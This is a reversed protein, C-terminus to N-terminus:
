RVIVAGKMYPHPGCYYPYIGPETFTVRWTAGSEIAGSEWSGDEASVTHVVEDRNTWEVTSGAAIVIRSPVYAYVEIDARVSPAATAGAEVARGAAERPVVTGLTRGIGIPITLELGFLTRTGGRSRGQLTASRTNTAFASATYATYPVGVSVGASWAVSEGGARDLRTAVDGTLAVALSRPLPNLVAGAALAYGTGEDYADTMGRFAGLLRVAGLRRSIGIETDLSGADLNYGVQGTIDFPLGHRRDFSLYRGFVEWEDGGGPLVGSRPAFTIGALASAPLGLTASLSPLVATGEGERSGAFRTPTTLHLQWPLDIWGGTVNPTRELTSQAALPAAALLAAALLTMTSGPLITRM